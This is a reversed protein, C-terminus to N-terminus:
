SAAKTPEDDLRLSWRRLTERSVNIGKLSFIGAMQDFTKGEDKLRRLEEALGGDLIQDVLEYTDRPM